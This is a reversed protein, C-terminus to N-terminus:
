LFLQLLNNLNLSLRINLNEPIKNRPIILKINKLFKRKYNTSTTCISVNKIKKKLFNSIIFLNKEVGGIGIYPM